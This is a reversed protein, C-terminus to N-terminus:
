IKPNCAFFTIGASIADYEDDQPKKNTTKVLLPVMRMMQDKTSKGYGTVAIKIEIPRYEFLPVNLNAIESLLAGRAEAVMLATKKNLSFFLTEMSIADPKFEKSVASVKNRILLLREHHPLDRDTTFCESYVLTPAGTKTRELVALGLRDYGPDIGLVRNM